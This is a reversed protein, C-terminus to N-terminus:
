GQLMHCQFYLGQSSVPMCLHKFKGNMIQLMEKLNIEKYNCSLLSSQQWYICLTVETQSNNQTWDVM